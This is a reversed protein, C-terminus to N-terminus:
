VVKKAAADGAGTIFGYALLGLIVLAGIDTAVSKIIEPFEPFVGLKYLVFSTLFFVLAFVGVLIAAIALPGLSRIWRIRILRSNPSDVGILNSGIALELTERITTVMGLPILFMNLQLEAVDGAAFQDDVSGPINALEASGGQFIRTLSGGTHASLAM